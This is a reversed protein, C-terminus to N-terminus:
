GKPLGATVLDSVQRDLVNDEFFTLQRWKEATSSPDLELAKKMQSKAEDIKGLNVANISRVLPIGAFWDGLTKMAEDSEQYRGGATLVFGKLFRLLANAPDNRIGFDAWSVAKDYDGASAAVEALTGVLFADNPALAIAAEAERLANEPEREVLNAYALLWHGM